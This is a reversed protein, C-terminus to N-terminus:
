NLVCLTLAAASSSETWCCIDSNSLFHSTWCGPLLLGPVPTVESVHTKYVRQNLVQQRNAYISLSHFWCVLRHTVDELCGLRASWNNWQATVTGWHKNEDGWDNKEPFQSKNIKCYGCELNNKTLLKSVHVCLSPQKNIKAGSPKVNLPSLIVM